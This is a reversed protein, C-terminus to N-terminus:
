CGELRAFLRHRRDGADRDEAAVRYGPEAQAM